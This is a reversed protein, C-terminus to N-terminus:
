HQWLVAVTVLVALFVTESVILLIPRAGLKALAQLSTKMGIASIATVLCWRSVEGLGNVVPAPLKVLSNIIVLLAFVVLFGPLLPPRAAEQALKASQRRFLSAIILSVPLLMAVRMLKVITATDGAEPSIGYGAAVVQAVDHITGGLVIGAAHGNLHLAAIAMPYFIMALTSLCTVGLVAFLTDRESHEHKPLVASVALAASAGCIAVASGTLVGFDHRLGLRRSLLWGFLITAALSVLVILLPATGLAVIQGATIRLGLLAVGARLVTTSSFRIGEICRGEQSLFHFAMGLLLAYLMTPGGYHDSLFMAAVGVTLAILTGPFAVRWATFLSPAAPQSLTQSM